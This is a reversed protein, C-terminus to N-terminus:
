SFKWRNNCVTCTVFTTMPEDASRTQAQRYRCKRQKCRGCQFADTEAQQEGAGLSAFLNDERIKSDAAKREESAMEQSTMKTFREVPLEGSVVNGRLSPNNKDKLNVFLTRIKAKYATNTSGHETYVAKEIARARDLLQESPSGSDVALSDYVLEMCKDRTTDGTNIAVGDKKATRVESKGSNPATPTIPTSPGSAISAKRAPAVKHAGGAKAREVETKWKKVLEKAADAVEKKAHTRLKGVALGAKSERLIAENVQFEKKLTQLIDIIEQETTSSQLQKVLKKLEVPDSM